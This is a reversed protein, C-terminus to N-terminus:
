TITWLYYPDRGHRQSMKWVTILAKGQWFYLQGWVTQERSFSVKIHFRRLIPFLFYMWNHSCAVVTSLAYKFLERSPFKTFVVKVLDFLRCARLTWIWKKLGHALISSFSIYILTGFIWPLRRDPIGRLILEISMKLIGEEANTDNYFYTSMSREVSEPDMLIYFQAM